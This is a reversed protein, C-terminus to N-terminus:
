YLKYILIIPRAIQNEARRFIDYQANKLVWCFLYFSSVTNYAILIRFFILNQGQVGGGNGKMLFGLDSSGRYKGQHEQNM